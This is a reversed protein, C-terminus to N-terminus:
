ELELEIEKVAKKINKYLEEYDGEFEIEPLHPDPTPSVKCNVLIDHIVDVLHQEILKPKVKEKYIDMAFSYGEWNDVGAEELAELLLERDM